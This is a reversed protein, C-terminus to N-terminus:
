RAKRRDGRDYEKNDGKAYEKGDMERRSNFLSRLLMRQGSRGAKRGRGKAETRNQVQLGRTWRGSCGLM